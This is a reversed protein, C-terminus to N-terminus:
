VKTERKSLRSLVMGGARILLARRKAAMEIKASVDRSKAGIRGVLRALGDRREDCMRAVDSATVKCASMEKRLAGCVLAAAATAIDNKSAETQFASM